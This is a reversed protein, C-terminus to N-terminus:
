GDGLHDVGTPLHKSRFLFALIFVLNRFDIVSLLSGRHVEGADKKANQEGHRAKYKGASFSM